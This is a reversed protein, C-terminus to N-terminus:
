KDEDDKQTFKTCSMPIAKLSPCDEFELVELRPLEGILEPIEVLSSCGGLQLSMMRSLGGIEDPLSVLKKCNRLDLFALYECSGISRPIETVSKCKMMNLEELYRLDGIDSPLHKLSTCKLICLERLNKCRVLSPPLFTLEKCERLSLRQLRTLGGLSSPLTKLRKCKDLFLDELNVLKGLSDPLRVLSKNAVGPSGGLRLRKLSQCGSIEEPIESLQFSDFLDLEVLNELKGISAPLKKLFDCRSITLKQLVPLHFISEHLERMNRHNHLDVVRLHPYGELSPVSGRRQENRCSRTSLSVIDGSERDASLTMGELEPEDDGVVLWSDEKGLSDVTSSNM